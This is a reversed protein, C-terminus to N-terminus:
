SMGRSAELRSLILPGMEEITNPKLVIDEAGIMRAREADEIRVYGSTLMLPLGPRIRLLEAALDLGSMGPMGLDTIVMDWRQPDREFERLAQSPDTFGEVQFGMRKLMRTALFVLPEEDDVYLIREGRGRVIQSENGAQSAETRRVATPFYIEFRAGGGPSNNALIVGGHRRVIGHVMALGMGTGHGQAKTTFFPEFIRDLDESRIGVGTDEVTLCVCTDGSLEPSRSLVDADVPLERLKIELLGGRASMADRANAGLNMVVQHIQTADALVPPVSSSQFRIEIMAPMTARLLRVAEDVITALDVQRLAPEENRSFALIRSVLDTARMAGRHIEEINIRVPHDAPLEDLTLRANGNIATLINNFDHAIGGALAGLAEMKESQRVRQEMRKRDSEAQKRQTVDRMLGLLRAPKDSEDRVLKAVCAMWRPEAPCRTVRFESQYLSGTRAAELMRSREAERNEPDILSLFDEFTKPADEHTLHLLSLLSDTCVITGAGIDLEWVGMNAASLIFGLRHNNERLAVEADKIPTIDTATGILLRVRGESDREFVSDHGHFWRWSGDAHRMRYTIEAVEGDALTALREVHKLYRPVDQEHMLVRTADVESTSFFDDPLGLSRAGQQNIFINRHEVLDDVYLVSPMVKTVRESFRRARELARQTERQQTVDRASAYILRQEPAAIARWELWRWEGDHRCYRNEFDILEGGRTLQVMCEQTREVDDPHVFSFFPRRMLETRPYGLTREWAPSLQRFYGDFDAICLLDPSLNFLRSRELELESRKAFHRRLSQLYGVALATLALGCVLAVWAFAYRPRESFDGTARSVLQLDLHPLKLTQKTHLGYAPPEKPNRVGQAADTSEEPTHVELAIGAPAFREMVIKVADNINVIAVVFGVNRARRDEIDTIATGPSYRPLFMATTMPDTEGPRELLQFGSVAVLEGTDRARYMAESRSPRGAYDLGLLERSAEVPEIYYIPYHESRLPADIFGGSESVDKIRYGAVGEAHVLQEFQRREPADVRRIWELSVIEPHAALLTKTFSAFESRTVEKSSDLFASVSRLGEVSHTLQEQILARSHDTEATFEARARSFEAARLLFFSGLSLVLGVLVLVVAPWQAPGKLSSPTESLESVSRQDGSV